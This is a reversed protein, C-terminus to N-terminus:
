NPIDMRECMNVNVVEQRTSPTIDVGIDCVATEEFDVQVITHDHGKVNLDSARQGQSSGPNGDECERDVQVITHDHGEVDLDSSRQGRFSSKLGWLRTLRFISIVIKTM